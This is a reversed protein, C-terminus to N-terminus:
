TTFWAGRITDVMDQSIKNENGKYIAIVDRLDKAGEAFQTHGEDALRTLLDNYATYATDIGEDKGTEGFAASLPRGEEIQNGATQLATATESWQVADKELDSLRVALDKPDGM